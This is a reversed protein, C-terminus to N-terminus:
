RRNRENILGSRTPDPRRKITSPPQAQAGHKAGAALM